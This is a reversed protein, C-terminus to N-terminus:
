TGATDPTSRASEPGTPGRSSRGGWRFGSCPPPLLLSANLAPASSALCRLTHWRPLWVGTTHCPLSGPRGVQKRSEIPLVYPRFGRRRLAAALSVDASAEGFPATYDTAKNGFGPLIVLPPADAAATVADDHSKCFQYVGLDNPVATEPTLVSSSSARPPLLAGRQSRRAHPLGVPQLSRAPNACRM